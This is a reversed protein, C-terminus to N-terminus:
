DKLSNYYDKRSYYKSETITKQMNEILKQNMEILNNIEETRDENLESKDTKDLVYKSKDCLKASRKIYTRYCHKSVQSPKLIYYGRNHINKLVYGYELVIKSIQTMMSIYQKHEIEDYINYKLIKSLTATDALDGYSLSLIYDICEEKEQKKASDKEQEYSINKM